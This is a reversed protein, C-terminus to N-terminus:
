LAAVDIVAARGRYMIGNEDRAISGAVVEVQITPQSPTPILHSLPPIYAGGGDVGGEGRGFCLVNIRRPNVKEENCGSM